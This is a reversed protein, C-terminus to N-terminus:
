EVHKWISRSKIRSIIPQTVGYRAAIATHTGEDARIAKVKEANLKSHPAREGASMTGHEWKDMNNESCTAWRLNDARNNLSNGDCHAVEHAPSPPEGHFVRCVIRHANTSRHKGDNEVLVVVHYNRNRGSLGPKLLRPARFKASSVQRMIRGHSSVAYDTAWPITKWVEESLPNEAM